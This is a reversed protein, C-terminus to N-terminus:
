ATLMWIVLGTALALVLLFVVILFLQRLAAAISSRVIQTPTQSTKQNVSQPRSRAKAKKGALYISQALRGLILTFLAGTLMGLLFNLNEDV